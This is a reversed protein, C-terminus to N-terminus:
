EPAYLRVLGCDPCRVSEIATSATMGVKELVASQEDASVSLGGGTQSQISTEKMAVCCDPCHYEDM